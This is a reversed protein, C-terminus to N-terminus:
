YEYDHYSGDGSDGGYRDGNGYCSGDGCGYGIDGGDGYHYQYDCYGGYSDGYCDGNGFYIYRDVTPYSGCDSNFETAGTMGWM